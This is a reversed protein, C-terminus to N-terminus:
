SKDSPKTILILHVIYVAGKKLAWQFLAPLVFVVVANWVTIIYYTM